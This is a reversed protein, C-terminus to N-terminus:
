HCSVWWPRPRGGCSPPSQQACTHDGAAAFISRLHFNIAASAHLIMVLPQPPPSFLGRVNRNWKTLWKEFTLQGSKQSHTSTAAAHAACSLTLHRSKFALMHARINTEQWLMYNFMTLTNKKNKSGYKVAFQEYKPQSCPFLLSISACFPM